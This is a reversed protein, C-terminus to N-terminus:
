EVHSGNPLSLGPRFASGSSRALVGLSARYAMFDGRCLGVSLEKLAGAVFSSRLVGRPGAAEEGLDHLPKMAPHGVRGYTEVSFPIFGYGNPEVRAYATRKQQYRHSAAAGATTAARPLINISLPYIVCIDSITIGHPLVM